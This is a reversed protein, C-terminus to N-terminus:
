PRPAPPPIVIERRGFLVGDLSFAGPGLLAIATATAVILLTLSTLGPSAIPPGPFWSFASALVCAGALVSAFPTLFGVVLGTGSLLLLLGVAWVLPTRQALGVLELTGFAVAIGGLAARMLLLGIGPAGRPFTSFLRQLPIRGGRVGCM